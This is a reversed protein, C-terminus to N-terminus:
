CMYEWSSSRVECKFNPCHIQHCYRQNWKLKVEGSIRASSMLRIVVSGGSSASSVILYLSGWTADSIRLQSTCWILEAMLWSSARNSFNNAKMSCSAGRWGRKAEKKLLPTPLMRVLFDSCTLKFMLGNGYFIKWDNEVKASSPPDGICKHLLWQSKLSSLNRWSLVLVYQCKPM